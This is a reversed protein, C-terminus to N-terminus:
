SGALMLLHFLEPLRAEQETPPKLASGDAGAGEMCIKHAQEDGIGRPAVEGVLHVLNRWQRAASLCCRHTRDKSGQADQDPEGEDDQGQGPRCRCPIPMRDIM